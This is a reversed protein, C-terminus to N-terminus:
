HAYIFNNNPDLVSFVQDVGEVDIGNEELVLKLIDSGVKSYGTFLELTEGFCCCQCCVQLLIFCFQCIGNPRRKLDNFSQNTKRINPTLPM